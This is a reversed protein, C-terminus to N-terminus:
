RISPTTAAARRAEEARARADAALPGGPALARARDFARAAAAPDGLEDALIRGLQFAAVAARPDTPYRDQIETLPPVADRPRGALRAQDAAAFRAEVPDGPAAEPSPPASRAVLRRRAPARDHAAPEPDAPAAAAHATAAHADDDDAPTTAAPPAARGRTLDGPGSDSRPPGASRAFAFVVGGACVTLLIATAKLAQKRRRRRATVEQDIRAKTAAELAPTWTVSLADALLRRQDLTTM